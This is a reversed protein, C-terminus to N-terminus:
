LDGVHRTHPPLPRSSRGDQTRLPAFLAKPKPTLSASQRRAIAASAQGFATDAIDCSRSKLPAPRWRARNQPPLPKAGGPRCLYAHATLGHLMTHDPVYVQFEGELEQVRCEAIGDHKTSDKIRTGPTATESGVGSACCARSCRLKLTPTNLKPGKPNRSPPFSPEFCKSVKLKPPPQWTKKKVCPRFPQGTLRTTTATSRLQLPPQEAQGM